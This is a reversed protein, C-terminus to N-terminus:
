GWPEEEAEGRADAGIEDTFRQQHGVLWRREPQDLQHNVAVSVRIAASAAYVGAYRSAPARWLEARFLQARFLEARFLEARFLEARM